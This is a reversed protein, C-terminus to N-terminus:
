SNFQHGDTVKWVPGLQLGNRKLDCAASAFRLFRTSTM